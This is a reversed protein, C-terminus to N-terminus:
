SLFHGPQNCGRGDGAAGPVGKLGAVQAFSRKYVGQQDAFDGVLSAQAGGHWGFALFSGGSTAQGAIDADSASLPSQGSM